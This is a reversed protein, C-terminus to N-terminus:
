GVVDFMRLKHGLTEPTEGLEDALFVQDCPGIATEASTGVRLDGPRLQFGQHLTGLDGAFPEPLAAPVSTRVSTGLAAPQLHLDDAADDSVRRGCRDHTDEPGTGDNNTEQFSRAGLRRDGGPAVHRVGVAWAEADAPDQARLQVLDRRGSGGQAGHEEFGEFGPRDEQDSRGEGLSGQSDARDDGSGADGGVEDTWSRPANM